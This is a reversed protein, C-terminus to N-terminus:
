VVAFYAALADALSQATSQSAEVHPTHGLNNLAATTSPGISAIVTNAPLTIRFESVLAFFNRASQASTFTLVNPSQNPDAFIAKLGAAVGSPLTMRYAEVRHVTAGAATLADAITANAGPQQPLLVQLGRVKSALTTALSTAAFDDPLLSASVGFSELAHASEGGVAAIRLDPFNQFSKGQAALQNGISRAANASTFVIWQYSALKEIAQKLQAPDSPPLLELMPLLIIEAGFARLPAALKEAQHAPRTVLIRKKHLAVSM